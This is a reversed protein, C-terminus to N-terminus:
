PHGKGAASGSRRRIRVTKTEHERHPSPSPLSVAIETGRGPRSVISLEGGMRDARQSMGILGFGGSDAQHKMDFGKGDDQVGLQILDPGFTLHIMVIRPRGHRLANTIAEQAIHYLDKGVSPEVPRATGHIQLEFHATNDSSKRKVASTLVSVLDRYELADPQLAWVSRRAESLGEKALEIVSAVASWAEEPQQPAIRQAARLKLLIGSFTQALTDHIQQAMRNREQLVATQREEILKAAQRTGSTELERAAILAREHQRVAEILLAQNIELLEGTQAGAARHEIAQLAAISTEQPDAAIAGSEKKKQMSVM